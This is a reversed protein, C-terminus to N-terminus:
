AQDAILRCLPEAHDASFIRVPTLRHFRDRCENNNAKDNCQADDSIKIILSRRAVNCNLQWFDLQLFLGCRGLRPVTNKAKAATRWSNRQDETLTRWRASVSGFARRVGMQPATRPNSPIVFARSIQDYRGGLSVYLGRRGSQPIDLIKM